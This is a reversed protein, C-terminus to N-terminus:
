TAHSTHPTGKNGDAQYVSTEAGELIALAGSCQLSSNGRPRLVSPILAKALRNDRHVVIWPPLPEESGQPWLRPVQRPRQMDMFPIAPLLTVEEM